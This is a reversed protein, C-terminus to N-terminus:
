IGITFLNGLEGIVRVIMALKPQDDARDIGMIEGDRYVLDSIPFELLSILTSLYRGRM